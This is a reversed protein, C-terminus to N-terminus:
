IGLSEEEKTLRLNEPLDTYLIVPTYWDEKLVM